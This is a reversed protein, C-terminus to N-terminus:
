AQCSRVGGGLVAKAFPYGVKELRGCVIMCLPDLSTPQGMNGANIATDFYHIGGRVRRFHDQYKIIPRLLIVTFNRPKSDSIIIAARKV